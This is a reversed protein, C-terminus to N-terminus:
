WRVRPEHDGVGRAGPLATGGEGAGIVTYSGRTARTRQNRGSSRTRADSRPSAGAFALSSGPRPRTVGSVLAVTSRPSLNRARVCFASPEQVLVAPFFILSSYLANSPPWLTECTPTVESAM